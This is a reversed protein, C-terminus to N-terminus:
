INQINSFQGMHFPSSPLEAVVVLENTESNQKM